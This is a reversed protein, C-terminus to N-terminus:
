TILEIPDRFFFAELLRGGTENGRRASSANKIITRVVNRNWGWTETDAAVVNDTVGRVHFTIPSSLLLTLTPGFSKGTPARTQLVPPATAVLTVAVNVHVEAFANILMRGPVLVDNDTALRAM